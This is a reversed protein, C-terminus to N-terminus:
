PVEIAGVTSIEPDNYARMAKRIDNGVQELDHHRADTAAQLDTYATATPWEGHMIRLIEWISVARVYPKHLRRSM